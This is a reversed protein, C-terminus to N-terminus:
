AARIRRVKIRKGHRLVQALDYAAQMALWTEPVGGFAKSLRVAM